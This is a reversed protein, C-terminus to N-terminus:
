KSGIMNNDLRDLVAHGVMAQSKRLLPFMPKGTRRPLQCNWDGREGWTEWAADVEDPWARYTLWEHGAPYSVGSGDVTRCVVTVSVKGLEEYKADLEDSQSM